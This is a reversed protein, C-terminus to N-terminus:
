LFKHYIPKRRIESHHRYETYFKDIYKKHELQAIKANEEERAIRALMIREKRQEALKKIFEKRKNYVATKINELDACKKLPEYKPKVRLETLGEKIKRQIDAKQILHSETFQLSTKYFLPKLEHKVLPKLQVNIKEYKLLDRTLNNIPNIDFESNSRMVAFNYITKSKEIPNETIKTNTSSMFTKYIDTLSSKTQFDHTLSNFSLCDAMSPSSNKKSTYVTKSFKM